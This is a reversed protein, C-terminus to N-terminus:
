GRAEWSERTQLHLPLKNSGRLVHLALIEAKTFEDLGTRVVFAKKMLEEVVEKIFPTSYYTNDIKISPQSHWFPTEM